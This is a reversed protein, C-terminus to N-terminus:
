NKKTADDNVLIWKPTDNGDFENCIRGRAWAIGYTQQVKAEGSDVNQRATEMANTVMKNRASNCQRKGMIGLKLPGDGGCEDCIQGARVSNVTKTWQQKIYDLNPTGDGDVEDCNPKQQLEGGLM